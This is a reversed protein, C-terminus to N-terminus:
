SDKETGFSVDQARCRFFHAVMCALIHRHWGKWTRVAYRDLGAGTTAEEGGKSSGGTVARRQWSGPSIRRICSWARM